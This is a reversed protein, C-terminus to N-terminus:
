GRQGRRALRNLAKRLGEHEICAASRELQESAQKSLHRRVVPKPPPEVPRYRIRSSIHVHRIPTTCNKELIDIIDPGLQRLRTTWAPSDTIMFLTHNKVATVHYHGYCEVPLHNQLLRTLAHLRKARSILRQDLRASFAQM